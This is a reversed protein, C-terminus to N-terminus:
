KTKKKMSTKTKAGRQGEFERDEHFVKIKNDLSELVDAIRALQKLIRREISGETVAKEYLNKWATETYKEQYSIPEPCDPRLQYGVIFWIM